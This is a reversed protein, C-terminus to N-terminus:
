RDDTEIEIVVEEEGDREESHNWSFVFLRNDKMKFCSGRKWICELRQGM